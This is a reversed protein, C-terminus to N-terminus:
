RANIPVVDTVLWRQAQKTLLIRLALVTVQQPKDPISQTARVVVAVSAAVL